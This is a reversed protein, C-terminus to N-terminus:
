LIAHIAGGIKDLPRDINKLHNTTVHMYMTTTNISAHGLLAQITRIDTGSELLYTAFSHRLTHITAAKNIESSVVAKKFFHQVGQPTLPSKRDRGPFLFIGRPRYERWYQRLVFLLTESMITYRDKQNKGQRVFIRMNKSDIDAIHLNLAESIRLGSAYCTLLIAKYKLNPLQALISLVEDESLVTPLKFSKKLRPFSKEDWSRKLISEFLIRLTANCMNIYDSSLGRRILHYLYQRIDDDGLKQIQRHKYYDQFRRLHCCYHKITNPSYRRLRLEYELKKLYSLSM